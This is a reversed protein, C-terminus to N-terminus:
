EDEMEEPDVVARLDSVTKFLEELEVMKQIQTSCNRQHHLLKLASFHGLDDLVPVM